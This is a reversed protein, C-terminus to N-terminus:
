PPASEGCDTDEEREVAPENNEDACADGEREGEPEEAWENTSDGREGDDGRGGSGNTGMQGRRGGERWEAWARALAGLVARLPFLHPRGRRERRRIGGREQLGGRGWARAQRGQRTRRGCGRAGRMGEGRRRAALGDEVELDAVEECECRLSRLAAYRFGRDVQPSGAASCIVPFEKTSVQPSRCIRVKILIFGYNSPRAKPFQLRSCRRPQANAKTWRRSVDHKKGTDQSKCQFSMYCESCFVDPEIFTAGRRSRGRYPPSQSASTDNIPAQRERPLISCSANSGVLVQAGSIHQPWRGEDGATLRDSNTHIRLFRLNISM